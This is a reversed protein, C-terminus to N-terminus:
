LDNVAVNRCLPIRHSAMNTTRIFDISGIRLHCPYINHTQDLLNEEDSNVRRMCRITSKTISKKAVRKIIILLIQLIGRWEPAYIWTIGSGAGEKDTPWFCKIHNINVFEKQGCVSTLEIFM